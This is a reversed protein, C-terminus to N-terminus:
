LCNLLLGGQLGVGRLQKLQHLGRSVGVVVVSSPHKRTNTIMFM